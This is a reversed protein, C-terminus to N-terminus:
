MKEPQSIGMLKLCLIFTDRLQLILALRGRSQDISKEDVIKHAGYYTHFLGALELAYYTLVHTQYNDRISALLEGLHAMKRILLAETEGIYPADAGSINKLADHAAAKELISHTRVLAYQLYYVPNEDTHKLALGIDFELHADAKRHLYFFRAVDRGVTEIVDELSIIRGARKSMRLAEGDEKLTVLQYLIIQLHDPNHGLAAMLAKLRVVYSHHDQGLVMIIRTFGRAIKNKLYAIDAAVYTVEGNARIVVRDKDDGFATSRFWVAGDQDFIHGRERLEAIAEQIAQPHLTKESFWEDFHVGYDDCTKKLQELLTDKAYEAFFADPKEVVAAGEKKILVRAIEILYEGQYGEEPLTAPKGLEQLYRAKLSEGLRTIQSGADNVYFEKIASDGLFRVINGYVDGIIGGRGHGLHLPGTPNASIFEINFNNESHPAKFFTEHQELMEQLIKARASPTLFVNLFGPGAIEIREIAEHKFSNAIQQAIERPNKKLSKALVLAANSSLDGFVTREADVNLNLEFHPPQQNAISAIHNVFATRLASLTSVNKM